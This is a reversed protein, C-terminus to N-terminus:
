NWVCRWRREEDLHGYRRYDAERETGRAECAWRDAGFSGAERWVPLGLATSEQLVIRGESGLASATPFALAIATMLIRM